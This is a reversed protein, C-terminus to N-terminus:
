IGLVVVATNAKPTAFNGTMGAATAVYQRGSVEYTIVGGGVPLATPVSALLAGTAANFALVNGLLDATFLLGGSSPTVAAVLPLTSHYRWAVVGTTANVASLWGSRRADRM